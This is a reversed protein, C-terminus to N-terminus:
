LTFNSYGFRYHLGITTPFYVLNYTQNARGYKSDNTKVWTVKPAFELNIGWHSGLYYTYGIQGGLVFGYGAEYHYEAAYTYEAPTNPNVKGYVIEGDNGIFNAGASIGIYLQSRSYDEYATYFPLVHNLEATISVARKALVYNVDATGLSDNSTGTLEWTGGRQWRTMGINIGANWREHLNLHVNAGVAYNWINKDGKYLSQHPSSTTSFGANLGAEYKQAFLTLSFLVAIATLISRM